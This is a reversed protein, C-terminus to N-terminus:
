LSAFTKLARELDSSLEALVGKVESPGGLKIQALLRTAMAYVDQASKRVETLDLGCEKEYIESSKEIHKATAALQAAAGNFDNAKSLNVASEIEKTMVVAEQKAIAHIDQTSDVLDKEILGRLQSSRTTVM